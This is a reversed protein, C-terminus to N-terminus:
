KELIRNEPAFQENETTTYCKALMDWKQLPLNEKQLCCKRWWRFVSWSVLDIPVVSDTCWCEAGKEDIQGWCSSSDVQVNQSRPYHNSIQSRKKPSLNTYIYIKIAFLEEHILRFLGWLTPNWVNRTGASPHQLSGNASTTALMRLFSWCVRLILGGGFGFELIFLKNTLFHQNLTKCPMQSLNWPAKWEITVM